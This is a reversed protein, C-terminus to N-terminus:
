RGKFVPKRKEIFARPGEVADESSFVRQAYESEIRLAEDLPVGSTRLVSEKCAQVAFPGNEAIQSALEEARPLRRDPAVIENILGIRHAEEATM